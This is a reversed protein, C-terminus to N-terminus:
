SILSVIQSIKVLFRCIIHLQLNLPFLYYIGPNRSELIGQVEPFSKSWLRFAASYMIIKPVPVPFFFVNHVSQLPKANCKLITNVTKNINGFCNM